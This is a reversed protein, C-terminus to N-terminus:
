TSPHNAAAAALDLAVQVVPATGYTVAPHEAAQGVLIRLAPGQVPQGCRGRPRLLAPQRLPRQWKPGRHSERPQPDLVAHGRPGSAGAPAMLDLVLNTGTSLPTPALQWQTTDAAPGSYSLTTAPPVPPLPPAEAAEAAGAPSPALALGALFLFQCPIEIPGGWDRAPSELDAPGVRLGELDLSPDPDGYHGLLDLVDLGRPHRIPRSCAPTTFTSQCPPSSPSAGPRQRGRRHRHLRRRPPRSPPAPPPVLPTVTGGPTNWAVTTAPNPSAWAASFTAPTRDSAGGAHPVRHSLVGGWDDVLAHANVSGLGTIQDYGTGAM